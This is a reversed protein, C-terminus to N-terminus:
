WGKLAKIAKAISIVRDAAISRQTKDVGYGMITSGSITNRKIPLSVKMKEELDAYASNLQDLLEQHDIFGETKYIPGKASAM